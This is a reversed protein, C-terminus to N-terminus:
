TETLSFTNGTKNLVIQDETITKRSVMVADASPGPTAIPEGVAITGPIISGTSPLVAALGGMKRFTVIPRKGPKPKISGTVGNPVFVGLTGLPAGDSTGPILVVGEGTNNVVQVGDGPSLVPEATDVDISIALQGPRYDSM